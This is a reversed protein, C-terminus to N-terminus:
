GELAETSGKLLSEWGDPCIGELGNGNLASPDPIVNGSGTLVGAFDLARQHVHRGATCELCYVFLGYGSNGTIECDTLDVDPSEALALGFLNGSLACRSVVATGDGAILIGSSGSGVIVCGQVCVNARGTVLVGCEAQDM